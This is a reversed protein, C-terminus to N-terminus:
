QGRANDIFNSKILDPQGIVDYFSDLYEIIEKKSKATLLNFNNILAYIKEKKQRYIDLVEQLEAMTRPYGRYLRQRVNEINLRDDPVAYDTNVFGSYDFDYPIVEPIALSDKTSYILKINHNVLVAWDTNGIMYEFIAVMTMQKRNTAETQVDSKKSEKCGNRKALDKIDELLFAREAIPKKKGSSDQWTLNLLRVRFSKETLLNYIKYILFEKLLYQEYDGSIKCENVLKLTRLSNFVAGEKNFTLRIPPVYCFDLRMHGRVEMLVPDNVATGDPLLTKFNGPFEYDRKGHNNIVKGLNTVLTANIVSTDSFFAFRDISHTQGYSWPIAAMCCCITLVFLKM